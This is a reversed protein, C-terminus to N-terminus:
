GVTPPRPPLISPGKAAIVGLVQIVRDIKAIGGLGGFAAILITVIQGGPTVASVVGAAKLIAMVAYAVVSLATKKGALAQGGLVKDIPSLIPPPVVGPAAGQGIAPQRGLLAGIILALPNDPASPPAGPTAGAVPQRGMLAAIILQLPDAAGPQAIPTPGPASPPRHALLTEFVHRLVDDPKLTPGGVHAGALAEQTAEDAVGTVPLGHASQFASVAAATNPGFDGDIEGVQFGQQALATQLQRVREGRAGRALAGVDAPVVTPEAAVGPAAGGAGLRSQVDADNAALRALVVMSGLQRDVVDPRFDHDAVFKGSTYQNSGSWLYPSNIGKAQYGFGNFAELLFAIRELSWDTIGILDEHQLADIAGAEFSEFPGRGIPVITTRRNLPQGNGLYTNFNCDSERLHVLGIYFWPVGTKQEIPVYRDKGSLIKEAAADARHVVDPHIEMTDWLHRYRPKLTEFSAM